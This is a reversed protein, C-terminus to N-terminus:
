ASFGMLMNILQVCVCLRVLRGCILLFTGSYFAFVDVRDDDDDDSEPCRKGSESDFGPPAPAMWNSSAGDEAGPLAPCKLGSESWSICLTRLSRGLLDTDVASM